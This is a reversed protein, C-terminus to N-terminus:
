PPFSAADSGEDRSERFFYPILPKPDNWLSAKPDAPFFILTALTADSGTCEVTLWYYMSRSDSAMSTHSGAMATGMSLLVDASTWSTRVCAFAAVIKQIWHKHNKGWMKLVRELCNKIAPNTHFACLLAGSRLRYTKITVEFERQRHFRQHM